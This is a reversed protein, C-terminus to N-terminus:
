NELTMLIKQELELVIEIRIKRRKICHERSFLFDQGSIKKEPLWNIKRQDYLISGLGYGSITGYNPVM